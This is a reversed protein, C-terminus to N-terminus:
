YQTWLLFFGGHSVRFTFFSYLHNVQNSSGRRARIAAPAAVAQQRETTKGWFAWSIWRTSTMPAWRPAWSVPHRRRETTARANNNNTTITTLRCGLTLWIPPRPCSSPSGWTRSTRPRPKRRRPEPTRSKRFM